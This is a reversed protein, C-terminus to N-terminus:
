GSSKANRKALITAWDSSPADGAANAFSGIELLAVKGHILFARRVFCRKGPVTLIPAATILHSPQFFRV